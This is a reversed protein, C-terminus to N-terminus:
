VHAFAARFRRKHIRLIPLRKQLIEQNRSLKTFFKHLTGQTHTREFITEMQLAQLSLSWHYSRDCCPFRSRIGSRLDPCLQRWRDWTRGSCFLWDMSWDILWNLKDILWDILNVLLFRLCFLINQFHLKAKYQNTSWWIFFILSSKSQRSQLTFIFVIIHLKIYRYLCNWRIRGWM